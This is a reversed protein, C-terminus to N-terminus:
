APSTHATATATSATTILPSTSAPWCGGTTSGEVRTVGTDLVAVTAPQDAEDDDAPLRIAQRWVTNPEDDDYEITEPTQDDDDPDDIGAMRVQADRWLRAVAPHSRLMGRAGRPVRAAFGDILPLRRTVHGGAAHVALEAADSAPAREAVLVAIAAPDAPPPMAAAPSAILMCAVVLTAAGGLGRRHLLLLMGVTSVVATAKVAAGTPDARGAAGARDARGPRM